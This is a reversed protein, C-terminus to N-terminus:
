GSRVGAGASLVMRKESEAGKELLIAIGEVSVLETLSDCAMQLYNCDSETLKMNTTMKHMLMMEEYTRALESSVLEVQEESRTVSNFGDAFVELMGSLYEPGKAAPEPGNYPRQAVLVAMVEGDRWLCVASMDESAIATRSKESAAQRALATAKERNIATHEPQQLLFEGDVDCVATLNGLGALRAGFAKLHDLQSVNLSRTKSEATSM